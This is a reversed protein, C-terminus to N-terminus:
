LKACLCPKRDAPLLAHHVYLAPTAGLWQAVSIGSEVVRVLSEALKTSYVALFAHDVDMVFAALHFPAGCTGAEVIRTLFPLRSAAQIRSALLATKSQSCLLCPCCNCVLGM